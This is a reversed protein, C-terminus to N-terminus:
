PIRHVFINALECPASGPPLFGIPGRQPSAEFPVSFEIEEGDLLVKTWAGDRYSCAVRRWGADPGFGFRDWPPLILESRAPDPQPRTPVDVAAGTIRLDLFLDFDEYEEASRLALALAEGSWRWDQRTWGRPAPALPMQAFGADERATESEDAGTAPLELIRLNRFLVESGESELCLYGKRPNVASGGSVAQGNVWHQVIGDVAVIRFHNWEGTGNARRQDPLCREWGAPHARDPKMTAGWIAFIDGHSTWNESEWGDIVQVEIGRLFPAGVAPLADSWLFFGANGGTQMHRYEFEVVFNEYMRDTRIEGTPAGSCRLIGDQVTFTDPDVNVRTWGALSVGDFLAGWEPLARRDRPTVMLRLDDATVGTELRLVVDVFRGESGPVERLRLEPSHEYVLGDARIWPLMALLDVRQHMEAPTSAFFVQSGDERRLVTVAGPDEWAFVSADVGSDAAFGREAEAEGNVLLNRQFWALEPGRQEFGVVRGDLGWEPDAVVGFHHLISAVLDPSKPPPWIMGRAVGPGHLILPAERHSPKNLGHGEGKQGAHDAHLAILWREHEYGPRAAISALLRGIQADLEALKRQYLPDGADYHSNGESHGVGDSEDFMVVVCDVRPEALWILAADACMADVSFDDFYDASALDYEAYFSFDPEAPAILHREIPRWSQAIACVTGPRAQKLRAFFIPYSSYHPSAFANDPVGHKDRHVGTLFTSWGSGSITTDECRTRMSWAGEEKLRHVNPMVEPQVVGPLFGDIFLVLAKNHPEEQACLLLALAFVSM